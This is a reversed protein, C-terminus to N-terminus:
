MSPTDRIASSKCNPTSRRCSGLARLRIEAEESSAAAEQLAARAPEGIRMLEKSAEERKEFEDHDLQKILRAIEAKDPDAAVVPIFLLLL